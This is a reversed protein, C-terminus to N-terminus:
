VNQIEGTFQKSVESHKVVGDVWQCKRLLTWGGVKSAVACADEDRAMRLASNISDGYTMDPQLYKTAMVEERNDNADKVVSLDKREVIWGWEMIHIKSEQSM